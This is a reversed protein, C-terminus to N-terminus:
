DLIDFDSVLTFTFSNGFVNAAGNCIDLFEDVFLANDAFVICGASYYNVDVTNGVGSKHCNIGFMGTQTTFVINGNYDIYDNQVISNKKSIKINKYEPITVDLISDKNNDRIVTCENKQVLAPYKGKHMGIRWMGNYQGPLLIATGAENIPKVRYVTGPDTTITFERYLWHNNYKYFVCLTDNFENSVRDSNRVGVINVNFPKTDDTFVGYGKDDLTNIIRDVTYKM